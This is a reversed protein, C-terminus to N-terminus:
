YQNFAPVIVQQTVLQTRKAVFLLMHLSKQRWTQIWSHTVWFLTVVFLYWDVTVMVPFYCM